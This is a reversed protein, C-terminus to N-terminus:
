LGGLKVRRELDVLRTDIELLKNEIDIVAYRTKDDTITKALRKLNLRVGAILTTM